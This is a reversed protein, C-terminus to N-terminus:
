NGNPLVLGSSAGMPATMGAAAISVTVTAGDEAQETVIKSKAVEVTDLRATSPDMVLPDGDGTWGMIMLTISGSQPTRGDAFTKRIGLTVGYVGPDALVISGPSTLKAVPAPPLFGLNVNPPTKYRVQSPSIPGGQALLHERAADTTHRGGAISDLKSKMSRVDDLPNPTGADAVPEEPATPQPEADRLGDVIRTFEAPENEM